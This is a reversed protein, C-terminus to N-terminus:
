VLESDPWQGVPVHTDQECLSKYLLETHPDGQNACVFTPPDTKKKLRRARQPSLLVPPSGILKQYLNQVAAKNDNTKFFAKIGHM